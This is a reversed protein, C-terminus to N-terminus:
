PIKSLIDANSVNVLVVAVVVGLILLLVAIAFIKKWLKKKKKM